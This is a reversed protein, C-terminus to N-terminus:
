GRSSASPVASASSSFISPPAYQSISSSSPRPSCREHVVEFAPHRRRRPPPAQAEGPTGPTPDQAGHVVCTAHPRPAPSSRRRRYADVEPRPPSAIVRRRNPATQRECAPVAPEAPLRRVAQHRPLTQDAIVDSHLDLVVLAIRLREAGPECAHGRAAVEQRPRVRGLEAPPRVRARRRRRRTTSRLRRPLRTGPARGPQITDANAGVLPDRRGEHAREGSSIPAHREHRGRGRASRDLPPPPLRRSRSQRLTAVTVRRM